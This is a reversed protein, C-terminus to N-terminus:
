VWRLPTSLLKWVERIRNWFSSEAKQHERMHVASREEAEKRYADILDLHARINEALKNQAEIFGQLYIPELEEVEVATPHSRDSFIRLGHSKRFQDIEFRPMEKEQDFVWHRGFERLSGSCLVKLEDDSLFSFARCFLTKARGLHSSGKVLVLVTGNRFWEVSGLGGSFVLMGNRNRSERWGCCLARSHAEESFVVSNWVWKRWHPLSKPESPINGFKLHYRFESLYNNILKGKEDYPLNLKSCAQKAKIKQNQQFLALARQKITDQESTDNVILQYNNEKEKM